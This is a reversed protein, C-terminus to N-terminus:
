NSREGECPAVADGVDAGAVVRRCHVIPQLDPGCRLQGERLSLLVRDIHEDARVLVFPCRGRPWAIVRTEHIMEYVIAVRGPSQVIQFSNGYNTPLM